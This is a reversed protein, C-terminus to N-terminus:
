RMSHTSACIEFSRRNGTPFSPATPPFQNRPGSDQPSEKRECRLRKAPPPRLVGREPATEARGDVPRMNITSLHRRTLEVPMHKTLLDAPSHEGRVKGLDLQKAPHREQIRRHQVELHRM